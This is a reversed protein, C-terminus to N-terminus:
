KTPYVISGSAWNNATFQISVKETQPNVEMSTSNRMPSFMAFAPKYNTPLSYEKTGATASSNNGIWRLVALKCKKNYSGYLGGWTESQLLEAQSWEGVKENVEDIAGQVEDATLGSTTNDYAVETAQTAFTGGYEEDTTTSTAYKIAGM